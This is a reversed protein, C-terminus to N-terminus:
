ANSNFVMDSVGISFFSSHPIVRGEMNAQQPDIRATATARSQSAWAHPKPSPMIPRQKIPNARRKFQIFLNVDSPAFGIEDQM